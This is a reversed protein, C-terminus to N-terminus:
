VDWIVDHADGEQCRSGTNWVAHGTQNYGPLTLLRWGEASPVQQSTQSQKDREEGPMPSMATDLEMPLLMKSMRNPRPNGQAKRVRRTSWPDETLWRRETRPRTAPNHSRSTKKKEGCLNKNVIFSQHVRNDQQQCRDEQRHPCVFM